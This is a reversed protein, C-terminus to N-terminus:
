AGEDYTLDYSAALEVNPRRNKGALRELLRTGGDDFKAKMGGRKEWVGCRGSAAEGGAKAVAVAGAASAGSAKAKAANKEFTVVQKALKKRRWQRLPLTERAAPSLPAYDEVTIDMSPVAAAPAAVNETLVGGGDKTMM